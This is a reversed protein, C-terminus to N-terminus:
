ADHVERDLLGNDAWQLYEFVLVTPEQDPGDTGDVIRNRRVARNSAHELRRVSMRPPRRVHVEQEVDRPVLPEDRVQELLARLVQLVVDHEARDVGVLAMERGSRVCQGPGVIGPQLTQHAPPHRQVLGTLLPATHLNTM